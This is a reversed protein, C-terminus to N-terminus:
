VGDVLIMRGKSAGLRIKLIEQYDPADYFRRAAARDPFEIVVVRNPAAGEIAEGNGGRVVFRGGYKAIVDPTRATYRKYADPDTIEIEGIIYAPM